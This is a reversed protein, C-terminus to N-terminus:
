SAIDVSKSALISVKDAQRVAEALTSSVIEDQGTALEAVLKHYQAEVLMDLIRGTESCQRTTM